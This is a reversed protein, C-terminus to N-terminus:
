NIWLMLVVHNLFIEGEELGEFVRVFEGPRGEDTDESHRTPRSKMLNEVELGWDVEGIKPFVAKM